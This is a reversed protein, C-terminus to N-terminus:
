WKRKGLELVRGIDSGNRNPLQPIISMGAESVSFFGNKSRIVLGSKRLKDLTNPLLKQEFIVNEEELHEFLNELQIPQKIKIQRLLLTDTLEVKGLELFSVEMIQPLQSLINVIQEKKEDELKDKLILAINSKAEDDSTPILVCFDFIDKIFPFISKIFEGMQYSDQGM